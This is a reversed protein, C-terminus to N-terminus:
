FGWWPLQVPRHYPDGLQADITQIQSRRDKGLAPFIDPNTMAISAVRGGRKSLRQLISIEAKTLEAGKAFDEYREFTVADGRESVFGSPNQFCRAAASLAVTKAMAPTSPDSFDWEPSGEARVWEWAADLSEEALSVDVEDQIPEGIRGALRLIQPDRADAM